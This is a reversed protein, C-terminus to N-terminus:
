GLGQELQKWTQQIWCRLAHPERSWIQFLCLPFIDCFLLWPSWRPVFFSTRNTLPGGICSIRGLSQSPSNTMGGRVLSWADFQGTNWLRLAASAVSFRRLLLMEKTRETLYTFRVTSVRSAYRFARIEFTWMKLASVTLSSRREISSGVHSIISAANALPLAM